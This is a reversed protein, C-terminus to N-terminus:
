KFWIHKSTDAKSEDEIVEAGARGIIEDFGEVAVGEEVEVVEKEDEAKVVENGKKVEEDEEEVPGEEGAGRDGLTELSSSLEGTSRFGESSSKRALILPELTSLRGKLNLNLCLSSWTFVM